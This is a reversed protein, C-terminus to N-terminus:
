EKPKKSPDFEIKETILWNDKTLRGQLFNDLKKFINDVILKAKEAHNHQWLRIDRPIKTLPWFNQPFDNNALFKRDATMTIELKGRIQKPHVYSNRIKILERLEQFEGSERQFYEEKFKSDQSCLYPLLYIKNELSIKNLEKQNLGCKCRLIEPLQAENIVQFDKLINNTLGELFIVCLLLCSRSYISELERNKADNTKALNEQCMQAKKLFYEIDTRISRIPKTILRPYGINNEEHMTKKNSRFYSHEIAEEIDLLDVNDKLCEDVFNKLCAKLTNLIFITPIGFRTEERVIKSDELIGYNVYFPETKEALQHAEDKKSSTKHVASNRYDRWLISTYEFAELEGKLQLFYENELQGKAKEQLIQLDVDVNYSLDGYKSKNVGFKEELFKIFPKYFEHNKRELCRKLLPLSIRNWILQFGSYSLIFKKFKKKSSRGGYKYGALSDLYCCSLILGEIRNLCNEEIFKIREEFFDFFFKLREEKEKSNM